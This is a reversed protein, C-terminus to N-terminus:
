SQVEELVANSLGYQEAVGELRERLWDTGYSGMSDHVNQLSRLLDFHEVGDVGGDALAQVFKPDGMAATIATGGVSEDDFGPYYSEDPILCGVACSRGEDDRYRCLGNSKAPRGQTFLHRAVKDFIQQANLM